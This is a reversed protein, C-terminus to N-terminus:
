SIQVLDANEKFQDPAAEIKWVVSSTALLNGNSDYIDGREATLTTDLLQQSAAKAQMDERHVLQWWALRFVLVGFGLVLMVGWLAWTRGKLLAPVGKEREPPRGDRRGERRRPDNQPYNPM